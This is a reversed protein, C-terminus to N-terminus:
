RQGRCVTCRPPVTCPLSQRYPRWYQMCCLQGKAGAGGLLTQLADGADGHYGARAEDKDLRGAGSHTTSPKAADNRVAYMM